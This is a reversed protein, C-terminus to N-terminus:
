QPLQQGKWVAQQQLIRYLYQDCRSLRGLSSVDLFQLTHHQLVTPLSHLLSCSGGTSPLSSSSLSTTTNNSNSNNLISHPHQRRYWWLWLATLTLQQQQQLRRRLHPWLSLGGSVVATVVECSWWLVPLVGCVMVVWWDGSWREPMRQVMLPAATLLAHVYCATAVTLTSVTAYAVWRSMAAVICLCPCSTPACFNFRSGGTLKGKSRQQLTSTSINTASATLQFERGYRHAHM